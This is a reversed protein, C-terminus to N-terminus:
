AKGKDNTSKQRGCSCLSALHNAADERDLTVGALTYKTGHLVSRRVQCHGCPHDYKQGNM